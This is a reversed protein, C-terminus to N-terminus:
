LYGIRAHRLPSQDFSRPRLATCSSLSLDLEAAGLQWPPVRVRRGLVDFGLAEIRDLLREYVSRALRIGSCVSRDLAEHLVATRAFLHRARQVEAALLARLGDTM